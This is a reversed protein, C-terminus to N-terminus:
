CKKLKQVRTHSSLMLEKSVLAQYFLLACFIVQAFILSFRKSKWIYKERCPFSWLFSSAKKVSSIGLFFVSFLIFCNLLLPVTFSDSLLFRSNGKCRLLLFPFIKENMIVHDAYSCGISIDYLKQKGGNLFVLESRKFNSQRFGLVWAASNKDPERM